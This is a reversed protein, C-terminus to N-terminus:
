AIKRLVDIGRDLQEDTNAFSLRFHTDHRSFINGPIVLLEHEIAKEVFKQGTGWPLKPYMYFAGDPKVIEYHDKLGAYLRDRKQRYDEMYPSVDCDLASLGAWQVPQPACVYTYQQLKTMTEVVEAPGHVFGLRWGTMAHSKSFGDVVITEPNFKAASVFPTDFCFHRYIEDSILAINRQACIEAVEKVSAEDLCVGTPNGPSNLLVLKTKPSLAAVFRDLDIQFAANTDVLVPIGSALRVLPAYMVFYPDFIIVEDGPDVLALLALNLAGSTGSTVLLKRDSDPWERHVDALLRERLPAIGQTPSYGNRGDKIAQIMSQKVSEPVDFHPQGISLNIPNKLKAALDFVRRIGSSDFHATRAAIWRSANTQQQPSTTM